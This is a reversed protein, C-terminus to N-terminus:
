WGAFVKKLKAFFGYRYEMEYQMTQVVGIKDLLDNIAISFSNKSKKIYVFDRRNRLQRIVDDYYAISVTEVQVGSTQYANVVQEVTIDAARKKHVQNIFLILKQPNLGLTVLDEKYQHNNWVSVNSPSTIIVVKDASLLAVKTVPGLDVGSDILVYDYFESLQRIIRKAHEATFNKLDSTSAISPIYDIGTEHHLVLSKASEETITRNTKIWDTLSVQKDVTLAQSVGGYPIDFDVVIIRKGTKKRIAVALNLSVETKGVGGKMSSVTIVKARM